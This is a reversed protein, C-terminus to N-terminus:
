IVNLAMMTTIDVARPRRRRLEEGAGRGLADFAVAVADAVPPSLGSV